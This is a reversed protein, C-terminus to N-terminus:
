KSEKINLIIKNLVNDWNHNEKFHKYTEIRFNNREFLSLKKFRLMYDYIDYPTFNDNLLYGTKEHIIMEPIAFRSPAITPTGFFGCDIMAVPAVDGKTPIILLSSESLIKNYKNNEEPISKNIYGVYDVGPHNIITKSPKGGIITLKSTCDILYFKKFAEFLEYGGKASFSQSIYLFSVNESKQKSFKGIVNAGIGVNVMNAGSISYYKKTEELSWQTTFFVYKAKDIFEKEQLTIRKIESQRFKQENYFKYYGYFSIDMVIYYKGKPKSKIWPTVGFYIIEDDNKIRNSVEISFARLRNESYFFYNGPLNFFRQIRSFLAERKNITVKIPGIYNLDFSKSLGEYIKSNLGSWGGSIEKLDINSIYNFKMKITKIKLGLLRNRNKKRLYFVKCKFM